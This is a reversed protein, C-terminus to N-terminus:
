CPKVHMRCIQFKESYAIVGWHGAMLNLDFIKNTNMDYIKSVKYSRIVASLQLFKLLNPTDRQDFIVHRKIVDNRLFVRVATVM